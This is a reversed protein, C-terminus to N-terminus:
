RRVPQRSVGFNRNMAPDFAGSSLGSNVEDRIMIRLIQKGDPGRSQSVEPRQGSGRQDIVNVVVGGSANVGLKGGIRELPMVAEPGAEGMLGMGRAMPFLTPGGVIGGAAFAMLRGNMWAGGKAQPMPGVFSADGPQPTGAGFLGTFQTGAVNLLPGFVTKQYFMSLLMKGFSKGLEDFSAKGEFTLDAFSDGVNDSFSQIRKGGEDAFSTLNKGTETAWFSVDELAKSSQQAGTTLIDMSHAGVNESIKGARDLAEWLGKAHTGLDQMWGAAPDQNGFIEQRHQAEREWFSGGKMQNMAANVELMTKLGQGYKGFGDLMGGLATPAKQQLEELTALAIAVVHEMGSKILAITGDIAFTSVLKMTEQVFELLNGRIKLGEPSDTFAKSLRLLIDPVAAISSASTNIWQTLAPAVETMLRVKLGLWAESVRGVADRYATLQVVQEPTFIVGLRRAREMQVSLNQIFSGGDKLLTVFQAGGEKGFFKSALSLQEAQSDVSEIGAAVEPLLETLSRVQGNTGKFQVLMKGIRSSDQGGAVMDGINKGLKGVSKSLTEFDQGAEGAAFRLASLQQVGVGLRASAKGLNDVTEAAADLGRGLKGAVFAGAIFAGVKVFSSGIRAAVAGMSTETKKGWRALASNAKDMEAQLKDMRAVLNIQVTGIDNSNGPM